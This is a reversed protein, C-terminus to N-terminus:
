IITTEYLPTYYAYYRVGEIVLSDSFYTNGEFEVYQRVKEDPSTAIAKAGNSERKITTINRMGNFYLTCDFGASEKISDVLRSDSSIKTKGKYIAGSVDKTYDGPYLNTYTEILSASVYRLSNKIEGKMSEQLVITSYTTLVIDLILLPVLGLALLQFIISKHKKKSLQKKPLQKKSVQQKSVRRKKM